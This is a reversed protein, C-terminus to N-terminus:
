PMLKLQKAMGSAWNYDSLLAKKLEEPTTAGASEFGLELVRAQFAPSATAKRVAAQIQEQTAAPVKAASAVMLWNAFNNFEPYGQEAFTPVDPLLPSRTTGAIGYAKIKGAKLLPASTVVNDLYITVQQGMIAVLAPPAGAFPVHQMDTGLRQNLLEGAYHSVTGPSNSAYSLKGPQSQVYRGLSAMDTAPLNPASVLVARIKGLPTLPVVDKMPDFPTRVVHPTEALVNSGTLLLTHGDAPAALVNQVAISGGAGPKNEVIVPQGLDKGMSESLLRALADLIGGPPGPVVIHVPKDPWAHAALAPLGIAAAVLLRLFIPKM